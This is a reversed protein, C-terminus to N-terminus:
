PIHYRSLHCDSTKALSHQLTALSPFPCNRDLHGHLRRPAPRLARACLRSSVTNHVSNGRHKDRAQRPLVSLKLRLTSLVVTTTGDTEDSYELVAPAATWGPLPVDTLGAAGQMYDLFRKQAAQLITQGLGTKAFSATTLMVLVHFSPPQGFPPTNSEQTHV